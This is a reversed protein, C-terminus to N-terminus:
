YIRGCKPIDVAEQWAKDTKRLLYFTSDGGLAISGNRRVLYQVLVIARTKKEDFGVASMSYIGPLHTSSRDDVLSYKKHISFKQQLLFNTKTKKDFDELAVQFEPPFSSSCQSRIASLSEAPVSHQFISVLESKSKNARADIISSLVQYGDGDDYPVPTTKKLKTQAISVPLSVFLCCLVCAITVLSKM